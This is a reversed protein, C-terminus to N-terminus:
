PCVPGSASAWAWDRSVIAPAAVAPELGDRAQLQNNSISCTFDLAPLADLGVKWRDEGGGCTEVDARVWRRLMTGPTWPVFQNTILADQDDYLPRADTCQVWSQIELPDGDLDTVDPAVYLPMAPPSCGLSVHCIQEGGVESDPDLAEGTLYIGQGYGGGANFELVGVDSGSRYTRPELTTGNGWVPERNHVYPQDVFQEPAQGLFVDRIVFTISQDQTAFVSKFGDWPAQLDYTVEPLTAHPTATWNIVSFPGMDTTGIAIILPDGEPDTATGIFRFPTTTTVVGDVTEHQAGLASSDRRADTPPLNTVDLSTDLSATELGDSLTGTLRWTGVLGIFASLSATRAHISTPTPFTVATDRCTNTSTDLTGGPCSGALNTVTVPDGDPDTAFAFDAYFHDSTTVHPADNGVGIPARNLVAVVFDAVTTTAGDADTVTARFTYDGVLLSLDAPATVAVDLGDDRPTQTVAVSADGCGSAGLAGTPCSILEVATTTANNEPDGPAVDVVVSASYGDPSTWTHNVDPATVTPSPPANTVTVAFPQTTSARMGNASSAETVEVNVTHEGAFAGGDPRRLRLQWSQNSASSTVDTTLVEATSSWFSVLLSGADDLDDSISFTVDVAASDCPGTPQDCAYSATAPSPTTQLDTVVPAQNLPQLTLTAPASDAEGDSATVEVTWQELRAPTEVLFTCGSQPTLTVGTDDGASVRAACTWSDGDADSVDASIETSGGLELPAGLERLNSLVPPSNSATITTSIDETVALGGAVARAVLAYSGRADEMSVRFTDGDRTITPSGSAPSIATAELAPVVLDEAVGNRDIAVVVTAEQGVPAPTLAGFAIGVEVAELAHVVRETAGDLTAVDVSIEHPGECRPVVRSIPDEAGELTAECDGATPATVRWRWTLPRGEEHASGSADLSLRGGVPFVSAGEIQATIGTPGDRPEDFSGADDGPTPPCGATFVILAAASFRLAHVFWDGSVV